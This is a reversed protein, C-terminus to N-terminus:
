KFNYVFIDNIKKNKFFYNKKNKIKKRQEKCVSYIYFGLHQTPDNKNLKLRNMSIKRMIYVATVVTQDNLLVKM